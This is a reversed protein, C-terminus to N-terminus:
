RALSALAIQNRVRRGLAGFLSRYLARGLRESSADRHLLADRFEGVAGTLAARGALRHLSLGSSTAAWLQSAREGLQFSLLVTDGDLARELRALLNPQPSFGAGGARSEMEIISGRLRRMEQRPAEADNLLSASEASQLQALTDWYAQPMNRRFQQREQLRETLSSARNEELAEFTERALDRQGNEFYLGAGTEVFSAYVQRLRSGVSVRTSDAGPTMLRYNRALELAIRFDAYARETEGKSLRLRGRAHYFHWEPIRGGPSKSEAVSADLLASASRLDGQELRLLGLKRYSSALSPLHNLKRMRFAELLADEAESPQNNLLLESGLRDWANSLLEPDDFRAAQVIGENFLRRSEEMKGDQALLGGLLILLRARRGKLDIAEERVLALRASAIAADLEGLQWYLSALSGNLASVSEFDGLDQLADRASLYEKLAEQYHRQAFHCNGMGWLFRAALGTEKQLQSERYGAQFLEFAKSYDGKYHLRTAQGLMKTLGSAPPPTKLPPKSASLWGLVSILVLLCVVTGMTKM